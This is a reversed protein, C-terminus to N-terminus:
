DITLGMAQRHLIGMRGQDALQLARLEFPARLGSADLLAADFTLRLTGDGALFDAGHGSALPVLAGDDATGYLVGRAEFRGPTGVTVGLDIVVGGRGREVTATGDLAATPLHGGFATRGSRVATLGDLSARTAVHVEWLGPTPAELADIALSGRYLGDAGRRLGLSWARGAPSTVFAEVRDAALARGATEFAMEVDVRSGHFVDVQGTRLTLVVDSAPEHVHVQYAGSARLSPAALTVTGVGVGDAVRFAVTGALVPMGAAILADDSVLSEVGAGAALRRGDAAVLVLGSPDIAGRLGAGPAPNIRVIAGPATLHLPTGTRLEAAAVDVFYGTSTAAFPRPSEVVTDAALPFTFVAPERPVEGTPVLGSAAGADLAVVEGSVLDGAAPASLTAPRPAAFASVAVLVALLPCLVLILHRQNM